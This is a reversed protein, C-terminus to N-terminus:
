RGSRGHRGRGTRGVVADRRVSTRCLLREAVLAAGQEASLPVAGATDLSVLGAFFGNLWARQEPTFPATEPILSPTPSLQNM